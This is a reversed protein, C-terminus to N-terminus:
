EVREWTGGDRCIGLVCGEVSLRDGSLTLRSSYTKGRDPSYVKGRYTGDGQPRTESIINRGVNPSEIPQGEPGYARILTGCLRGGCPAVEIMGFNGNDDRATVWRGELPDAAAAGALMLTAAAVAAALRTRM